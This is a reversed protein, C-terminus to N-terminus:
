AHVGDPFPIVSVSCQVTGREITLNIVPSRRALTLGGVGAVTANANVTPRHAPWERAAVVTVDAGTDLLAMLTVAQDKFQLTVQKKLRHKLDVTLLAMQGTSGFGGKGRHSGAPATGEALRPLPILQAIRTGAPIHLPPYLTQAMIQIEGKFDADILGVAITLGAMTASSRVILLAGVPHGQATM